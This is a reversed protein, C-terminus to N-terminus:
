LIIIGFGLYKDMWEFLVLHLIYLDSCLLEILIELAVITAARVRTATANAIGLKDYAAAGVGLGLSGHIFARKGAVVFSVLLLIFLSSQRLTVLAKIVWLM